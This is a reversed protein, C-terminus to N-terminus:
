RWRQPAAWRNAHANSAAFAPFSPIVRWVGRGETGVYFTDPGARNVHDFVVFRPNPLSPIGSTGPTVPDTVQRWNLGDDDTYFVGSDRGGAVIVGPNYPDFAVLSPQAYGSLQSLKYPFTQYLRDNPTDQGNTNLGTQNQYLFLGHDTMLRDLKTDPVWTAGGDNSRVMTPPATMNAAFM